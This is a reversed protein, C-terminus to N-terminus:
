GHVGAKFSNFVTVASTSSPQIGVQSLPCSVFNIVKKYLPSTSPVGFDGLNVNNVQATVNTYYLVNITNMASVYGTSVLGGTPSSYVANFSRFKSALRDIVIFNAFNATPLGSCNGTQSPTPYPGSADSGAPNCQLVAGNWTVNTQSCYDILQPALPSTPSPLNTKTLATANKYCDSVNYNQSTLGGLDSTGNPQILLSSIVNSCSSLYLSPPVTWPRLISLPFSNAKNPAQLRFLNFVNPLSSRAHNDAIDPDYLQALTKFHLRSESRGRTSKSPTPTTSAYGEM